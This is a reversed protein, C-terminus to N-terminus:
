SKLGSLSLIFLVVYWDDRIKQYAKQLLNHSSQRSISMVTSIQGADLGEYFKLYIVERQRSPLSNLIKNVKDALERDTSEIILKTEIGFELNFDYDDDLRENKDWRAKERIVRNKIATLLYSKITERENVDFGKNWLDLFMQQICDKVVDEDQCFRIGFDFLSKSYKNIVETYASRM